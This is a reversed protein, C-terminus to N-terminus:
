LYIVQGFLLHDSQISRGANPKPIKSTSDKAVIEVVGAGYPRLSPACSAASLPTRRALKHTGAQSQPPLDTSGSDLEFVESRDSLSANNDGKVAPYSAEIDTAM